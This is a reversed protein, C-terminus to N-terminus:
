VSTEFGKMKWRNWRKMQQSFLPVIGIGITLKPSKQDLAKKKFKM